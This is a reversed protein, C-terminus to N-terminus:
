ETRTQPSTGNRKFLRQARQEDAATLKQKKEAAEVQSQAQQEAAEAARLRAEAQARARADLLQPDTPELTTLQTEGATVTDGPDLTIRVLRGALPTSVIYRERIRTQGDEDVTVLLEGRTVDALDVEVPAPRTALIVAFALLALVLGWFFKKRLSKM